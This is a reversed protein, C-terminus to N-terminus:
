GWDDPSFTLTLGGVSVVAAGTAPDFALTGEVGAPLLLMALRVRPGTAVVEVLRGPAQVAYRPSWAQTRITPQGGALLLRADGRGARGVHIAAQDLRVDERSFLWTQRWELPERATLQDLVLMWGAAPDIAVRRACRAPSGPRDFAHHAAALLVLADRERVRIPELMPHRPDEIAAMTRGAVSLTCHGAPGIVYRRMADDDRYLWRGADALLTRGGLWYHLSLLDDHGHWEGKPGCDFALYNDDHRVVALGADPYQQVRQAPVTPPADPPVGYWVAAADRPLPRTFRLDPYLARGLALFPAVPTPDSDGLPACQGDPAATQDYAQFAKRLRDHFFQMWVHGNRQGLLAPRGYWALCGLGYHPSQEYHLGDDRFAEFFSEELAIRAAMASAEMGHFEPLTTATLYIAEYQMASHNSRLTLPGHMLAVDHLHLLQALMWTHDAPGLDPATLLLWYTWWLSTLRIFGDLRAHPGPLHGHWRHAQRDFDARGPYGVRAVHTRWFALAFDLYERSGSVRHMKALEPMWRLRNMAMPFQPDHTPNSTFDYDPTLAVYREITPSTSNPFEWRLAHDAIARTLEFDAPDVRQVERMLDPVLAPDFFPRPERRARMHELLALDFAPWDARRACERPAATAPIDPRLRSAVQQADERIEAM